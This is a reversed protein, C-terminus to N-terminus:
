SLSAIQNDLDKLFDDGSIANGTPTSELIKGLGIDEVLDMFKSLADKDSILQIITDEAAKHAASDIIENLKDDTMTITSM